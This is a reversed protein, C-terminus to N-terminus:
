GVAGVPDLGGGPGEDGGAVVHFRKGVPYGGEIGSVAGGLCGLFGADGIGFVKKLLDAKSRCGIGVFQVEGAGQDGVLLEAVMGHGVHEEDTKGGIIEDAM